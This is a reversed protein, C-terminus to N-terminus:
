VTYFLKVLETNGLSPIKIISLSVLTFILKFLSTASFEERSFVGAKVRDTDGVIVEDSSVLEDTGTTIIITTDTIATANHRVMAIMMMM